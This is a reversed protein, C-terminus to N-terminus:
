VQWQGSVQSRAVFDIECRCVGIDRLSADDLAQLSAAIQQERRWRSFAQFGRWPAAVVSLAILTATRATVGLASRKATDSPAKRLLRGVGVQFRPAPDRSGDGYRAPEEPAFRRSHGQAPYPRDGRSSVPVSAGRGAGAQTTSRLCVIKSM